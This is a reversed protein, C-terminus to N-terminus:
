SGRLSLAAYAFEELPAIIEGLRANLPEFELKTGDNGLREAAVRAEALVAFCKKWSEETQPIRWAPMAAEMRDLGELFGAIAEPLPAGTNRSTPVASLLARQAADLEAAVKRFAERAATLSAGERRRRFLTM